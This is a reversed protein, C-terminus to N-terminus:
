PPGVAAMARSCPLGAIPAALGPGAVRPGVLPALGPGAPDVDAGELALAEGERGRGAAGRLRGGDTLRESTAPHSEM